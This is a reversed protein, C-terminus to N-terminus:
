PRFLEHTSMIPLYSTKFKYYLIGILKVHSPFSNNDVDEQLSQEDSKYKCENDLFYQSLNSSLIWLCDSLHHLM